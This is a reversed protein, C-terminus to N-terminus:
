AWNGGELFAGGADLTMFPQGNKGAVLHSLLNDLFVLWLLFIPFASSYYFFAM